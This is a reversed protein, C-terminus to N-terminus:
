RTSRKLRLKVAGMLNAWSTTWLLGSFIVSWDAMEAGATLGGLGCFFGLGAFVYCGTKLSCCNNLRPAM